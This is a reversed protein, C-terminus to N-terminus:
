LGPLSESGGNSSSSKVLGLLGISTQVFIMVVSSYCIPSACRTFAFYSVYSLYIIDRPYHPMLLCSNHQYEMKKIVRLNIVVYTVEGLSVLLFLIIGIRYDRNWLGYVLGCSHDSSKLSSKM